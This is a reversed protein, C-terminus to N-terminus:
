KNKINNYTSKLVSQRDNARYALELSFSDFDECYENLEQPSLYEAIYYDFADLIQLYEDDLDSIITYVKEQGFINQQTINIIANDRNDDYKAEISFVEVTSTLPFLVKFPIGNLFLGDFLGFLSMMYDPDFRIELLINYETKVQLIFMDRSIRDFNLTYPSNLFIMNM